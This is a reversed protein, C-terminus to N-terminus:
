LPLMSFMMFIGLSLMAGAVWLPTYCHAPNGREVLLTVQQGAAHRRFLLQHLHPHIETRVQKGGLMMEVLMRSNDQVSIVTAHVRETSPKIGRYLLFSGATIMSVFVVPVLIASVEPSLPLLPMDIHM